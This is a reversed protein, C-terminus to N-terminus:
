NEAIKAPNELLPKLVQLVRFLGQGDILQRSKKELVKRAKVDQILVQLQEFIKQESIDPDYPLASVAGSKEFLAANHAEHPVQPIVLTPTGVSCTECMALGGATIALDAEAFIEAINDPNHHYVFNKEPYDMQFVEARPTSRSLVIHCEITEPLRKLAKMVRELLGGANTAGMLVAISRVEGNKTKKKTEHGKKLFENRLVVFKPGFNEREAETKGSYFADFLVDALGRGSGLDDFNVSWVGSQKLHQMYAADTDKIDNIVMQIDSQALIESIQANLAGNYISPSLLFIPYGKEKITEFAEPFGRMIFCVEHGESKLAEALVLSRHVNGLGLNVSGDVRIAVNM